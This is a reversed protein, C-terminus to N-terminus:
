ADPRPSSSTPAAACSRSRPVTPPAEQLRDHCFHRDRRAIKICTFAIQQALERTPTVVLVRPNRKGRGARELKSLLPLLFAATKGTGTSAAAILDRGELVVPIAQEQM